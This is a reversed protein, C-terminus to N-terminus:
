EKSAQVHKREMQNRETKCKRGSISLRKHEGKREAGAILVIDFAPFCM